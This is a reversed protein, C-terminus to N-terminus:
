EAEDDNSGELEEAQDFQNQNESDLKQQFGGISLSNDSYIYNHPQVQQGLM